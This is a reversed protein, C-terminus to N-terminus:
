APRLPHCGVPIASNGSCFGPGTGTEENRALIRVEEAMLNAKLNEWDKESYVKAPTGDDLIKLAKDYEEPTNRVLVCIKDEASVKGGVAKLDLQM